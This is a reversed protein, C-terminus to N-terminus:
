ARAMAAQPDPVQLQEPIGSVGTGRRRPRVRTLREAGAPWDTLLEKAMQSGTYLQHRQLLELVTSLDEQDPDTVEVSDPNCRRAVAKTRALIFAAGGSMGAGFNRGIPGLVLVAGGTMYECGHDGIGEVVATAGSNRVAFRHGAQGEFFAEGATAGYLAVNGAIVNTAAPFGVQSPRRVVLRGGSLGKGPYDNAAGVCTLSVGPALWAGLSQGAVGRLRVQITNDPLGSEGFRRAVEGSLRAGVALDSNGVRASASGPAGSTLTDGLRQMLRLDLASELHHEQARLRARGEVDARGRGRRLVAPGPVPVVLLPALDLQTAKWSRGGPRQELCDVRGVMESVTRFGLSAMQERVDEAVMMFFRIVHEPAGAFRRRLVPDQTAIGVPCSNLHCVRMLICGAAVLAATAFGFEEAGLLAAIVVDRGTRLGGDAQVTVRSRLGQRVLAQQTEALGLEWPIGVHKISSLPAAGTGGDHGSITLHDARAKVVGAAVTGVGAQAVLKVSVRASPNPQKLDWILQALDEISYIDHHPPPSILELGPVAHRLRAITADVKHGPLQGGEGPKAGQAIKIQIDDANVLYNVTVGFRASAVQKIASRRSSGDSAPAFRRPDEGGEGTNSKGGIQNMALAMTEHAEQSISGLSMAGTVFRRVITSAPEVECIPVAHRPRPQLLHRLTTSPSSRADALDTFARFRDSDGARVAHQLAAVSEPNWAHSEGEHRWRHDGGLELDSCQAVPAFERRHRWLVEETLVAFDAGNLRSPTGSCCREIVVQAIGVAEFVQAGCYSSVTSIGMKSMVKLLGEALAKIYAAMAQGGDSPQTLRGAAALHAIAALGLYPNVAEAGHGILCALHHVTRADAAEVVLSLASRAGAKVLHQHVAGVALLSPVPAMEANTERDSLVLIRVGDEVALLAESCLRDLERELVGATGDAAFVTRLTRSRLNPPLESRLQRLQGDTLIPHPLQLRTVPRRDSALLEGGGGLITRLSMVSRERISDIPPNTVQAFGQSFYDFLLRPRESLVALAADNGMSGIAEHGTTAMPGLVQQFEEDTFGFCRCWAMLDDPNSLAPDSCPDSPSPLQFLSAQALSRYPHRRAVSDKIQRDDLVRGTKTDVLIMQGPELRGTRRVAAPDLDVVGAESALVVLDDTISYRVPRLGNRDLTSGVWRGDSFSIAAPGDWPEMLNAQYAYFDRHRAPIGQANEWAEPLMMMLGEPLSRGSRVLLEIVNDFAASDSGQPEIVPLIDQPNAGCIPHRWGGERARMWNVNGRLANIEGNHAIFRFPQALRWSPETNTSFRQHFLALQSKLDPASLDPYYPELQTASLQGKYVLTATSCSTIAFLGTSVPDSMVLQRIRAEIRKRLPYLTSELQPASQRGSVFAQQIVPQGSRAAPGITRPRVPVERWGLFQLRAGTVAEEIVGQCAARDSSNRPLFVTAVAYRGPGPLPIPLQGTVRRLFEDPIQILLGAGDGTRPDAGFAGRHLLRRLAGLGLEIVQRTPERHRSAVFGVGCGDHEFWPDLLGPQAASPVPEDAALAPGPPARVTRRYPHAPM